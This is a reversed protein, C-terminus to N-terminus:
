SSGQCPISYKAVFQCSGHSEVILLIDLPCPLLYMGRGRSDRFRWRGAERRRRPRRSAARPAARGQLRSSLERQSLPGGVPLDEAAPVAARVGGGGRGPLPRGVLADVWSRAVSYTRAVEVSVKGRHGPVLCASRRTHATASRSIHCHPQPCIMWRPKKTAGHSRRILSARKNAIDGQSTSVGRTSATFARTPKISYAAPIEHLRHAV